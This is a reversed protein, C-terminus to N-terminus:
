EPWEWFPMGENKSKHPIDIKIGDVKVCVSVYGDPSVFSQISIPYIVSTLLDRNGYVIKVKDGAAPCRTMKRVPPPLTPPNGWKSM